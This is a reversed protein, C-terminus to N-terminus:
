DESAESSDSDNHLVVENNSFMDSDIDPWHIDKGHSGTSLAPVIQLFCTVMEKIAHKPLWLPLEVAYVTPHRGCVSFWNPGNLIEM